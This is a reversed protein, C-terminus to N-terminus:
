VNNIGKQRSKAIELEKKPTAQTKKIFSHLLYITSGRAFVYFIRVEQKGRVRLEYLGGGMPKAHPMSLQAGFEELLEIQRILKAQTKPQLKRIFDEVVPQGAPTEYLGIDWTM